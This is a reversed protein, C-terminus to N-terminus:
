GLRRRADTEWHPAGRRQTLELAAHHHGRALQHRGLLAALDGLVQDVPMLVFAATTAGAIQGQFPLLAQYRQDAEDRDALAVDALARVTLLLCRFFDPRLPPAHLRGRRAAPVEGYLTERVQVHAFRLGGLATEALLGTLVGADLAALVTDEDTGSARPLVDLDIEDAVIAALQLVSRTAPPLRRLRRRLM